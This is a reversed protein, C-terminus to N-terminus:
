HDDTPPVITASVVMIWYRDKGTLQDKSKIGGLLVSSGSYVTVHTTVERTSLIPQVTEDVPFEAPL